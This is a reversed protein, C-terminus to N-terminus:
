RTHLQSRLLKTIDELQSSNRIVRPTLMILLEVRRVRDTRTKFLNGIIPTSKLVPVGTETDEFRDQILGGLVITRGSQGLVNSEVNRTSIVPNGNQLTPSPTSVSQNIRLAVSNSAYIRPTVDLVIGTDKIEIQQTVTVNGSSQSTQSSIAYPIQDGVVLRATKGDLVTLYPSSIVKVKTVAQLASLIAEIRYNGVNGGLSVFAGNGEPATVVGTGGTPLTEGTTRAAVYPGQLYMQVGHDLHDNLEVEVIMAEIALQSQPVDMTAVVDRIRQFDAYTAHIMLTNTRPDPVIRVRPASPAEAAAAAGAGRSGGSPTGSGAASAAAEVIGRMNFKPAAESGADGDALPTQQPIAPMQRPARQAPQEKGRSETAAATDGEGSKGFIETLPKAIEEATLHRLEIIRLAPEDTAERDMLQALQKVGNMIQLDRAGILLAQQRELPLITPMDGGAPVRAQYFAILKAAVKEPTGHHVPVVAVKDDGLGDRSISQLTQEVQAIDNAPARVIVANAANSPTLSISQPLLQGAIGIVNAANNRDLKVVRTIQEVTQNRRANAELSEVMEPTGIHYVSNVQRMAFGNRALIDRVVYLVQSKPLPEETRFTVSGGLDDPAIYNVGLAGGLLQKLVFGITARNFDINVKAEPDLARAGANQLSALDQQVGGPTPKYDVRVSDVYGVFPLVRPPPANLRATDLVGGAPAAEGTYFLSRDSGNYLVARQKRASLFGDKCRGDTKGTQEEGTPVTCADGKLAECSTLVFTMLLGLALNRM